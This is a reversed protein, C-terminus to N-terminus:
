TQPTVARPLRHLLSAHRHPLLLRLRPLPRRLTAPTRPITAPPSGYTGPPRFAHGSPLLSTAVSSLSAVASHRECKKRNGPRGLSQHATLVWPHGPLSLPALLNLGLADYSLLNQERSAPESKLARIVSGSRKRGLPGWSNPTGWTGLAVIARTTEGPWWATNARFSRFSKLALLHPARAGVRSGQVEGVEEVKSVESGTVWRGIDRGWGQVQFGLSAKSRVGM